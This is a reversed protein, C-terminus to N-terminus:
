SARKLDVKASLKDDGDHGTATGRITDGDFVLDFVLLGKDEDGEPLVEFTLKGAELKGNRMTWQQDENPGATGTVEAGNATLHMVASDPKVDGDPTTIDFKGSWKGTLEGASLTLGTLLLLCILTKMIQM